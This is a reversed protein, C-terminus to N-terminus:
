AAEAGYSGPCLPHRAPLSAVGRGNEQSKRHRLEELDASLSAMSKRIEWIEDRIKQIVKKQTEILNRNAQFLEWMTAKGDMAQRHEQPKKVRVQTGKERREHIEMIDDITFFPHGDIRKGINLQRSLLRITVSAYGTMEAVQRASYMKESGGIGGLYINQRSDSM